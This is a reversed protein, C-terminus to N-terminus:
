LLEKRAMGEADVAKLSAVVMKPTVPIPENHITEGEACAREAVRMLDEDSPDELGIGDLTTPLGVQECFDYVEDIVDTPKDTLFLSALTGIAVKEGHMVGHTEELVTLGNHIAHAAALGGSEFGLGSLLTNAEIIREVAETVVGQEAVTRAIPGYELLTDYCMKALTYAAHTGPSGTMNGAYKKRASDAEFHTALADGMGAVLFRVPARVIIETDVLVMNPNQPLFLYHDFEGEETYIVSLASTPADTSAITPAIIVPVKLQHAAAKSADITKGGGIGVVMDVESSANALRDVEKESVEGTFRELKVEVKDELPGRFGEYLNDAVFPDLIVLAHSGYRQLEEGLTNLAGFGQVYRGPFITKRIMVESGEGAPYQRTASILLIIMPCSVEEKL